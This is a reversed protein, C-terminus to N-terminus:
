DGQENGRYFFKDEKWGHYFEKEGFKTILKDEELSFYQVAHCPKSPGSYDNSGVRIICHWHKRTHTADILFSGDNWMRCKINTKEPPFQEEAIRNIEEYKEKFEESLEHIM